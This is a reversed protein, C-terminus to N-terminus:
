NIARVCVTFLPQGKSRSQAVAANVSYAMASSISADSALDSTWFPNAQRIGPMRKLGAAYSEVSEDLTPVRWGDGLRLSCGAQIPESPYGTSDVVRPLEMADFWNMASPLITWYRNNVRDRWVRLEGTLADSISKFMENVGQTYAVDQGLRLNRTVRDVKGLRYLTDNLQNMRDEASALEEPTHGPESTTQEVVRLDRTARATGRFDAYAMPVGQSVALSKYFGAYSTARPEEGSVCQRNLVADSSLCNKSFVIGDEMWIVTQTGNDNVLGVDQERSVSDHRGCSAMVCAVTSLAMLIKTPQINKM